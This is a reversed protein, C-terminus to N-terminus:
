TKKLLIDFIFATIAYSMIVIVVGIIANAIHKKAKAVTEENGGATMWRFGAIIIIILFILVLLQLAGKILLVIIKTIDMGQLGGSASDLNLLIADGLKGAEAQYGLFGSILFVVLIVLLIKLYKKM